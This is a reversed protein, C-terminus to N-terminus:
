QKSFEQKIQELVGPKFVVEVATRAMCVGAKLTLEHSESTNADDTFGSTHNPYNTNISYTPHISPVQYSLDGMDTSFSPTNRDSEIDGYKIGPMVNSRYLEGLISNSKMNSYPIDNELIEVTCGTATAGAQLCGCIKHRLEEVELNNPARLYYNMAAIEPIINPKIGGNTIIGHVRWAPKLQQRMHSVSTYGSVAADLANVGEWPFAAAHASKGKYVINIRVVSLVNPYIANFPFPHVMMAFDVGKFAGGRILHIKGGGGEEAPTGMVTLKLKLDPYKEMVAKIGIAAALGAEAILNHGCAHGIEPLADYECVICANVATADTKSAPTYFTARFATKLVFSREVEFGEKELFNTLLFHAKVEEMAIEPNEWIKNSVERLRERAAEIVIGIISKAETLKAESESQEM